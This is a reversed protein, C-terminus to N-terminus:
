RFPKEMLQWLPFSIRIGLRDIKNDAFGTFIGARGVGLLGISYGGELYLKRSETSLAHLHVAEDFAFRQLFPLQKLILYQSQYNLHGELWWKGSATYPELLNFSSNFDSVTFLMLNNRFYKLDNMYITKQSLFRGASASWKVRDFPSLAIHQSVSSSLRDYLPANNSTFPNIGKEYMITFTPYKSSAYRKQGDRIRYRHRPTYRLELAIQTATHNPYQFAPSPINEEVDKNRFNYSTHNKLASRQDVEMGAFLRLGKALDITNNIHFYRSNYFRIFNQGLAIASLSNMLRSEGNESNVDRSIHGGSVNLSGLRMPAYNFTSSLHWLWEKQATTYYLSPSFVIRKDQDIKWDLSVTQGLWFGDVFNYERIAGTVGGYRLSSKEDIKWVGGQMIKGFAGKKNEGVSLAVENIGSKGGNISDEGYLSDKVQYSRMEDERLPLERVSVWFTSDRKWALTDVEMKVNEIDKIELSEKQKKIEKPETIQAMLKSMKSAERNSLNEKQTLEELKGSSAIPLEDAEVSNYKMSAFYQGSAKIGMTNITLIMNYTTPLYVTPKVQHYDIMYQITTGMQSMSLNASYVNWTEELIYIHGSFLSPNKKKPSVKIKHIIRDSLYETNELKFAYFRLASPSLPSIMGDLEPDYISATLISLGKEAEFEKPISSKLAVVHQQYTQPSTFHINSKSELLLPKGILSNINAENDNVKMARKLIRPIKDITLRGKIYAESRYEKIQYRYYPAFAIAKRMIRYAPDENSPNADVVVEQLMYTKEQLKITITQDENGMVVKEEVTEYGLSRFECTYFGPKLSTQFEGRNDAAIGKAIEYIYLTSNAIPEGKSNTIIGRLQQAQLGSIIFVASLAALLLHKM